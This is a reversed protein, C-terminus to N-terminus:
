LWYNYEFLSTLTLILHRGTSHQEPYVVPCWKDQLYLFTHDPTLTKLFFYQQKINKKNRWIFLHWAMERPVGGYIVSVGTEAQKM